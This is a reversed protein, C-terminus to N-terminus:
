FDDEFSVSRGGGNKKKKKKKKKKKGKKKKKKKGKKESRKAGGLNKQFRFRVSSGSCVEKKAFRACRCM